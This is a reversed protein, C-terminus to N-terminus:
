FLNLKWPLAYRRRDESSRSPLPDLTMNALKVRFNEKQAEEHVLEITKPGAEERRKVWNARRLDIVDQLASNKFVKCLQPSEM